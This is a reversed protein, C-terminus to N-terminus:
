RCMKRNRRHDTVIYVLVLLIPVIDIGGQNAEEMRHMYDVDEVFSIDSCRCPNELM